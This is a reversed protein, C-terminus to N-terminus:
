GDFRTRPGICEEVRGIKGVVRNVEPIKAIAADMESLM